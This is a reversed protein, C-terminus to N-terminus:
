WGRLRDQERGPLTSFSTFRASRAETWARADHESHFTRIVAGGKVSILLWYGAPTDQQIATAHRGGDTLALTERREVQAMANQFVQRMYSGMM